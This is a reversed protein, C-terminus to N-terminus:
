KKILRIFLRSVEYFVVIFNNYSKEMINYHEDLSKRFRSSKQLMLIAGNLTM